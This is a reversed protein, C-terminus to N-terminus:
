NTSRCQVRGTSRQMDAIRDNHEVMERNYRRLILAQIGTPIYQLLLRRVLFPDEGKMIMDRFSEEQRMAKM